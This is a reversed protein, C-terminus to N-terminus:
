RPLEKGEAADIAAQALRIVKIYDVANIVNPVKLTTVSKLAKLMLRNSNSLKNLEEYSCPSTDIIKRLERKTRQITKLSKM